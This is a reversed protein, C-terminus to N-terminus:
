LYRMVVNILLGAGTGACMLAGRIQWSAVWFAHWARFPLPDYRHKDPIGYLQVRM